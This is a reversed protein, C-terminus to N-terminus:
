KEAAEPASIDEWRYEIVEGYETYEKVEGYGFLRHFANKYVEGYDHIVEYEEANIEVNERFFQINKIEKRTEKLLEYHFDM